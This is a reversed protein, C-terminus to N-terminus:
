RPWHRGSGPTSPPSMPQLGECVFGPQAVGSMGPVVSPLFMATVCFMLGLGCSAVSSESVRSLLPRRAM